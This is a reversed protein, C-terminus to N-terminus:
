FNRSFPVNQLGVKGRTRDIADRLAQTELSISKAQAYCGAVEGKLLVHLSVISKKWCSVFTFEELYM